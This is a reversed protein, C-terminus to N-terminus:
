LGLQRSRELYLQDLRLFLVTVVRDDLLDEGVHGVPRKSM